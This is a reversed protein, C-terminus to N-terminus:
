RDRAVQGLQLPRQEVGDGAASVASTKPPSTPGRDVGAIDARLTGITRSCSAAPGTSKVRSRIRQLSDSAPMARVPSPKM